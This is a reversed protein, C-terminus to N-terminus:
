RRLIADKLFLTCAVPYILLRNRYHPEKFARYLFRLNLKNILSPYYELGSASQSIFGGCTFYTAPYVKYLDRMIQDQLPAGMGIIIVDPKVQYLDETYQNVTYDYGNRALTIDITPYSTLIYSCFLEIEAQKGGIIAVRKRNKVADKFVVPALSTADFSLRPMDIGIARLLLALLLGDAFINDPLLEKSFVRSVYYSYPNLFGNKKNQCVEIVDKDKLKRATSAM